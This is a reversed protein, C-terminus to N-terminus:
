SKWHGVQETGEDQKINHDGAVVKIQDKNQDACCHAATIVFNKFDSYFIMIKCHKLYITIFHTLANRNLFLLVNRVETGVSGGCFHFNITKYQLSVQFTISFLQIKTEISKNINIYQIYM